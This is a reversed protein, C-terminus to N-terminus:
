SFREPARLAKALPPLLVGFLRARTRQHPKHKGAELATLSGAGVNVYALRGKKQITWPVFEVGELAGGSSDIAKVAISQAGDLALAVQAPLKGVVSGPWSRYNEFYDFGVGSFSELASLSTL